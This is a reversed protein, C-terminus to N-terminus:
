ETSGTDTSADSPPETGTGPVILAARVVSCSRLLTHPYQKGDAEVAMFDDEDTPTHKALERDLAAIIRKALAPRERSERYDYLINIIYRWEYNLFLGEHHFGEWPRQIFPSFVTYIEGNKYELKYKERIFKGPLYIYSFGHDALLELAYNRYETTLEGEIVVQRHRECAPQYRWIALLYYTTVLYGLVAVILLKFFHRGVWGRRLKVRNGGM